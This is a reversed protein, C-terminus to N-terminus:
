AVPREMAVAEESDLPVDEFGLRRWFALGGLNAKRVVVRLREAGSQAACTDLADVLATGAGRRRVLPDLLLLGITWTGAVRWDRLIEIVAVLGPAYLGFAQRGARPM